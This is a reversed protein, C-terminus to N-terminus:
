SWNKEKQLQKRKRNKEGMLKSEAPKEVNKNEKIQQKKTETM